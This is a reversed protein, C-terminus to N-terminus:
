SPKRAPPLQTGAACDAVVCQGMGIVCRAGISVSQRVSANSGVFTGAGVRVGSNITAATAVHCHDAIVTDHEILSQSNVICNRGVAAGANVIAGHMVITGAGVTAHSSVHALPSVIVPLGCGSRELEAFLRMRLEPTKIQGVAILANNYNRLLAPLEENTALVPYGFIQSGVEQAVGVLGGIAFRGQLEIVDICARAHGGAGVLLISEQTM